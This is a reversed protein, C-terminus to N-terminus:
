PCGLCGHSSTTGTLWNGSLRRIFHRGWIVGEVSVGQADGFDLCLSPVGPGQVAWAAHLVPELLADGRFLLQSGAGLARLKGLLLVPNNTCLM